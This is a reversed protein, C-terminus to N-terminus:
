ATTAWFFPRSLSPIDEESLNEQTANCRKQEIAQLEQWAQLRLTNRECDNFAQRQQEHNQLALRLTAKSKELAQQKQVLLAQCAPLTSEQIVQGQGLTCQSLLQNQWQQCQALNQQAQLCTAYAANCQRKTQALKRMAAEKRAQRSTSLHAMTTNM